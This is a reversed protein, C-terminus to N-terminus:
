SEMWADVQAVHEHVPIYPVLRQAVVDVAHAHQLVRHVHQLHRVDDDAPVVVATSDASGHAVLSWEGGKSFQNRLM